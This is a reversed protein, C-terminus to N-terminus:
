GEIHLTFVIMRSQINDIVSSYKLNADRSHINRLGQSVKIEPSLIFTPFYFNFGIGLEAGYDLKQLKVLDDARRARANSALDFDVKGGGLMYVRFNHIRDSHFKLQLPFSVLISEINKVNNTSNEVGEPYKTVYRISRNMFILQPNFRTELRNALRLTASLGLSLGGNNNPEAVYVSDDQLFRSHLSTRFSSMNGGLTIGFYYPKEDHNPLNPERFQAQLDDQAVFLFLIAVVINLVTAKKRHLHLM